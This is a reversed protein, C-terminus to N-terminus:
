VIVCKEKVKLLNQKNYDVIPNRRIKYYYGLFLYMMIWLNLGDAVHSIIMELFLYLLLLTTLRNKKFVHVLVIIYIAYGFFTVEKTLRLVDCHMNAVRRYIEIPNNMFFDTISGLGNANFSNLAFNVINVRGSTFKNLDINFINYIWEEGDASYLWAMVYPMALMILIIVALTFKSFKGDFWKKFLVSFKNLGIKGLLSIAIYGILIIISLLFPLRKFSLFCFAFSILACKINKLYLFIIMLFFFDHAIVNEYLSSNSDSLTINLISNLSLTVGYRLLFYLALKFLIIYFFIKIDNERNFNIAVFAIIVPVIFYLLEEVLYFEPDNNRVQFVISIIFFLIAVALTEKLVDLYKIGTFKQIRFFTAIEFIFFVGLAVLYITRSLYGVM